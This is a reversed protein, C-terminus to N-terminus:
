TFVIDESLSREFGDSTINHKIFLSPSFSHTQQIHPLTLPHRQPGMCLCGGKGPPALWVVSYYLISNIWPMPLFTSLTTSVSFLSVPLPFALPLPLPLLPTYVLWSCTFLSSPPSHFLPPLPSLVSFYCSSLLALSLLTLMHGRKYHTICVQINDPLQTTSSLCFALLNFLFYWCPWFTICENNDKM